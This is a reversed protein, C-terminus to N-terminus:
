INLFRWTGGTMVGKVKIHPLKLSPIAYPDRDLVILDAFYGEDLRGLHDALGVAIPPNITYAELATQVDIMEDPIWGPTHPDESSLKREVAAYIGLFPDPSEVPADSGFIMLSGTAQVSRWAYAWRTRDGWYREATPHDSPAHLPQMSITINSDALYELDAPHVIQLHEIRHPLHPGPASTELDSLAKIVTRCAQDGIAHVSLPMGNIIAKKGITIIDEYELLLVGKNGPQSNYPEIM